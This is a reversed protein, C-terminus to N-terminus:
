IQSYNTPRLIIDTINSVTDKYQPDSSLKKWAPSVRFKDWNQYREEMNEFGLMYTLNPMRQGVLTEGFFVPHLGTDRFIEIEGGENFMEIKKVAAKTSHSEYTRMEFVRSRKGMITEPVEVTPMQKFAHMLSSEMRVYAPDSLSADIFEKGTEYFEEDAALQSSMTLFSEISPHPILVYLSPLNEGFMVTFVGIPKIGLRNVAPIAANKLFDHLINKKNGLLMNYKRLELFQRSDSEKESAMVGLAATAALSSTVAFTRRDM